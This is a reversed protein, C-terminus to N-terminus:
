VVINFSEQEDLEAYGQPIKGVLGGKANYTKINADGSDINYKTRAAKGSNQKNTELETNFGEDSGEIPKIDEKDKKKEVKVDPAAPPPLGELANIIM